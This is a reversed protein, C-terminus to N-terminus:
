DAMLNSNDGSVSEAEEYFRDNIDDSKDKTPAQVNLVIIGM